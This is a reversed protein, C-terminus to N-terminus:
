DNYLVLKVQTNRGFNFSDKRNVNDNIKIDWTEIEEDTVM